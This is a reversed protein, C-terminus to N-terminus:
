IKVKCRELIEKEEHELEEIKGQILEKGLETPDEKMKQYYFTKYEKIEKLRREDLNM